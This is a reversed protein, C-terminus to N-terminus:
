LKASTPTPGVDILRALRSDPAFAGCSTMWVSGYAIVLGCFFARDRPCRDVESAMERNPRNRGSELMPHLGVRGTEGEIPSHGTCGPVGAGMPTRKGKIHGVRVPM